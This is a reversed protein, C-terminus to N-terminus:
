DVSMKVDKPEWAEGASVRKEGGEGEYLLSGWLANRPRSLEASFVAAQLPCTELAWPVM